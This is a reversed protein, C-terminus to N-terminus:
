YRRIAYAALTRDTGGEGTPRDRIPAQPVVADAGREAARDALQEFMREDSTLNVGKVFVVGLLRYTGQAPLRELVEVEGEWPPPLDNSSANFSSSACGALLCAVAM